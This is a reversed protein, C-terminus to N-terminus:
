MYRRYGSLSALGVMGNQVTREVGAVGEMSPGIVSMGGKSVMRAVDRMLKPLYGLLLSLMIMNAVVLALFRMIREPTLPLFKIMLRTKVVAQYAKALAKKKMKEWDKEVGKSIDVLAKTGADQVMKASDMTCNALGSIIGGATCKRLIDMPNESVMQNVRKEGEKYLDSAIAAAGGKQDFWTDNDIFSALVDFCGKDTPKCKTGVPLKSYIGRSNDAGYFNSVPGQMIMQMMMLYATLVAPLILYVIVHNFWIVAVPRTITFLWFPLVVPAIGFLLALSVHITATYLLVQFMAGLYMLVMSLGAICIAAGFPGLLFLGTIMIGLGSAYLLGGAGDMGVIRNFMCDFRLTVLGMGTEGAPEAKCLPIDPEFQALRAEAADFVLRSMEGSGDMFDRMHQTLTGVGNGAALYYLICIKFTLIFTPGLAQRGVAGGLAVKMCLFLIALTCMPVLIPQLASQLGQIMFEALSRSRAEICKFIFYNASRAYNTTRVCEQGAAPPTVIQAMAEPAFLTLGMMLWVLLLM